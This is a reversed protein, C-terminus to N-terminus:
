WAAENPARLNGCRRHPHQWSVGLWGGAHAWSHDGGGLKWAQAREESTVDPPLQLKKDRQFLRLMDFVLGWLQKKAITDKRLQAQTPGERGGAELGFSRWVVPGLQRPRSRQPQMGKWLQEQQRPTLGSPQQGGAPGLPPPPWAPARRAM